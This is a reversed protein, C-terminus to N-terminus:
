MLFKILKCILYNSYYISFIVFKFINVCKKNLDLHSSYCHAQSMQVILVEVRQPFVTSLITVWVWPFHTPSAPPLRSLFLFHSFKFRGSRLCPHFPLILASRVSIRHSSTSSIIKDWPLTWHRIKIFRSRVKPDMFPALKNVLLILCPIIRLHLIQLTRARLSGLETFVTKFHWHFM